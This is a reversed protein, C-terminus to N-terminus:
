LFHISGLCAFTPRLPAGEKVFKKLVLPKLFLNFACCHDVHLIMDSSTNSNKAGIQLSITSESKIKKVSDNQCMEHMGQFAAM